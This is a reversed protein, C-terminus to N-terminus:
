FPIGNVTVLMQTNCEARKWAFACEFNSCILQVRNIDLNVRLAKVEGLGSRLAYCRQLRVGLQQSAARIEFFLPLM